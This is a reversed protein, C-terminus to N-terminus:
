FRNAAILRAAHADLSDGGDAIYMVTAYCWLAIVRKLEQLDWIKESWCIYYRGNDTLRHTAMLSDSRIGYPPAQIIYARYGNLSTYEIQFAFRNTKGHYTIDDTTYPTYQAMSDDGKGSYIFDSDDSCLTPDDYIDDYQLLDADDYIDDICDAAFDNFETLTDDEDYLDSLHIPSREFIDEPFYDAASGVASAVANLNDSCLSSLFDLM